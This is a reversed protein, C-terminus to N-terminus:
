LVVEERDIHLPKWALPIELSPNPPKPGKPMAAYDQASFTSIERVYAPSIVTQHRASENVLKIPIPPYLLRPLPREFLPVDQLKEVFVACTPSM